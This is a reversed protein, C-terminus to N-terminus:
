HGTAADPGGEERLVDYDRNAQWWEDWPPLTKQQFSLLLYELANPVDGAIAFSSMAPGAM